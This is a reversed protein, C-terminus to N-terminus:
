AIPYDNKRVLEAIKLIGKYAADKDIVAYDILCEIAKAAAAGGAAATMGATTDLNAEEGEDYSILTTAM